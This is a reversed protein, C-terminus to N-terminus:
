TLSTAWLGRAKQTDIFNRPDPSFNLTLRTLPFVDKKLIAEHPLNIPTMIPYIM